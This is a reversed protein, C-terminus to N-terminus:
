TLKTLVHHTAAVNSIRLSVRFGLMGRLSNPDPIAATPMASAGQGLLSYKPQLEKHSRRLLIVCLPTRFRGM